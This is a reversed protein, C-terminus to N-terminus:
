KYIEEVLATVCAVCLEQDGGFNGNPPISQCGKAWSTLADEKSLGDQTRLQDIVTVYSVLAEDSLTPCAQRMSDTLPGNNSPPNAQNGCGALVVMAFLISVMQKM